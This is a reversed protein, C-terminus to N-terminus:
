EDIGVCAVDTTRFGKLVNGVFCEVRYDVALVFCLALFVTDVPGQMHLGPRTSEARKLLDFDLLHHTNAHKLIPDLRVMLM